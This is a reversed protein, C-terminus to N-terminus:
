DGLVLLCGCNECFVFQGPTLIRARFASPLSVNCIGCFDDRVMSICQGKMKRSLDEYKQLLAPEVKAVIQERQQNLRALEQRAEQLEKQAKGKARELGTMEKEEQGSLETLEVETKEMEEMIALIKDEIVSQENQLSVLKKEMNELERMNQVEGGYLKKNLSKITTNINQLNLEERRLKKKEAETKERHVGLREQLLAMEKKRARYEQVSTFSQMEDEKRSIEGELQQLEWLMTLQEM